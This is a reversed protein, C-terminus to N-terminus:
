RAAGVIYGAIFGFIARSEVIGSGIRRWWTLRVAKVDVAATAELTDATARLHAAADTASMGEVHAEREDGKITIVISADIGLTELEDEGPLAPDEDSELLRGDVLRDGIRLLAGYAHRRGETEVLESACESIIRRALLGAFEPGRNHCHAAVAERVGAALHRVLADSM